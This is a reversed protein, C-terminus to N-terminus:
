FRFYEQISCTRGRRLIGEIKGLTAGINYYHIFRERATLGEIRPQSPDIERPHIYFVAPESSSNVVRTAARLFLAPILRLYFGGSFGM